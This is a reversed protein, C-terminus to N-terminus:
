RTYGELQLPNELRFTLVSEAPVRVESGRTLVQAAAGGAAGVAAGIAAGSGGGAVAGILTGLAAGGGVMEATRRNAGLGEQGRATTQSSTMYTRGDVSISRLALQIEGTGVAGPDEVRTVVLEARAGRPVIVNGDGGIVESAITASYPRGEAASTTEIQENTRVQITTGAPIFGPQQSGTYVPGTVTRDATRGPACSSLGLVFASSCALVAIRNM